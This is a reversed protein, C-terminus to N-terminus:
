KNSLTTSPQHKHNTGWVISFGMALNVGKDKYPFPINNYYVFSTPIYDVALTLNIGDYPMFSLGAGINSYKGNNVLSYSVALNFWNCPRLAGGLTLEEYLRDNVLRTKSVLGVGLINNCFNADVGINIKTSIMRTFSETRGTSHLTKTLGTLASTVDNILKNTNFKNDATVYDSYKMGDVGAFVTDAALSYNVGKWYVVGLDNVAASIQVQPHPKYTFGLDVGGGYGQPTLVNKISLGQTLQNVNFNKLSEYSLQQPLASLNVPAAAQLYGKGYLHWQLASADLDMSNFNMSLKAQGMLFKIKGGVTWQDNIKHSYGVSFETYATGIAMTNKLNLNSTGSTNKMGGDLVFTFLDRPLGIGMEVREMIGIHVYGNEKARCGLSFLDMTLDGDVLTVERLPKLAETRNIDPHLATVTQNNVQMIADSMTLSNNGLWLSTYGLPTFNLYGDSVPQFAPNVLHRMPANELFYLTNVQQALAQSMGAILLLSIWLTKTTKM